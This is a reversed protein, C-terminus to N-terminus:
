TERTEMQGSYTDNVYGETLLNAGALEYEENVEWGTNDYVGEQQCNPQVYTPNQVALPPEAPVEYIPETLEFVTTKTKYKLIVFIIVPVVAVIVGVIIGGLAAETIKQTQSESFKSFEFGVPVQTSTSNVTTRSLTETSLSTETSTVQIRPSADSVLSQFTKTTTSTDTNTTTTSDTKTTSSLTITTTSQTPMSTPFPTPLATVFRPTTSVGTTSICRFFKCVRDDLFVTKEAELLEQVEHCTSPQDVSIWNFEQRVRGYLNNNRVVNLLEMQTVSKDCQARCSVVLISIVAIIKM